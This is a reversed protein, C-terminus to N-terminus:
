ACREVGGKPSWCFSCAAFNLHSSVTSPKSAALSLPIKGICDRVLAQKEANPLALLRAMAANNHNRSAAHLLTVGSLNTAFALEPQRMCTRILQMLSGGYGRKCRWRGEFLAKGDTFSVNWVM